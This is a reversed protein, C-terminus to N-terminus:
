QDCVDSSPFCVSFSTTLSLEPPACSDAITTTSCSFYAYWCVYYKQCFFWRLSCLISIRNKVKLGYLYFRIPLIGFLVLLFIVFIFPKSLKNASKSGSELSRRGGLDEGAEARDGPEPEVSSHGASAIRQTSSM